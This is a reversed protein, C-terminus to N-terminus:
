QTMYEWKQEMDKVFASINPIEKNVLPCMVTAPQRRDICKTCARVYDNNFRKDNLERRNRYRTEQYPVNNDEVYDWIDSDTWERLPFCTDPGITPHFYDTNLGCKGEFIDEDCDKQGMLLLDWPHFFTGKPRELIDYRACLWPEDTVPELIGNPVDMGVGEGIQYRAVTQIVGESTTGAVGKEGHAKSHIKIGCSVPPWDHVELQWLQIVYDAFANKEPFWHNRHYVVPMKIGSERLLHLMVMSDKGFSSLVAPKKGIIWQQVKSRTSDLLGEKM